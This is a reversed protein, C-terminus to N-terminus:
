KKNINNLNNMIGKENNNSLVLISSNENNNNLNSQNLNVNNNKNVLNHFNEISFIEDMLESLNLYVKVNDNKKFFIFPFIYTQLKLKFIKKHRNKNDNNKKFSSNKFIIENNNLNNVNIQNNINNNIKSFLLNSQAILIKSLKIQSNKLMENKKNVFFFLLNIKDIIFIKEIIYGFIGGIINFLIDCLSQWKAIIEDLKLYNRKIIRINNSNEIYINLITNDNSLISSQLLMNDIDFFDFRRKSKFFFLGDDSEFVVKNIPVKYNLFYDNYLYFNKMKIISKLPNKYDSYDIDKIFYAFFFELPKSFQKKKNIKIDFYSYNNLGFNGYFDISIKSNSLNLCFLNSLNQKIFNLNTNECISSYFYIENYERNLENLNNISYYYIFEIDFYESLNLNNNDNNTLGFYFINNNLSIIEKPNTESTTTITYHNRSLLLILYYIITILFLLLYLISVFLGFLSKYEQKKKFTIFNQRGYLDFNEVLINKIKGM